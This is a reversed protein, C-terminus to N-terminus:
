TPKPPPLAIIGKKEPHRPTIDAYFARFHELDAEIDGSPIVAPGLGARKRGYDVYGMVIPVKAGLAIYYFGTKWYDVKGRTGEPAVVLAMKDRENFVQIAQDVANKTTSRNLPVGGALRMLSGFPFRFLTHKGVWELRVRLVLAFLVMILGDWNSTHPAGIVVMKPYNPPLSGVTWGFLRLIFGAIVAFFLSTDPPRPGPAPPLVSASPSAPNM